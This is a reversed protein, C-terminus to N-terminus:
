KDAPSRSTYTLIGRAIGEAIADRHSKQSLKTEEAPNSLFGCEVLVAPCPANRIVDFRARRIGRDISGTAHLVGRHVYCALVTNRINHSNGPYDVSNCTKDATSPFGNAPLVYTEFGSANDSSAANLHISVFLNAKWKRAMTSRARLPLDIDKDRTLRVLLGSDALKTRVRRAIDLVAEKEMVRRGSAGGDMGGHGPDLVVMASHPLGSPLPDALLPDIVTEADATSITWDQSKRLAPGNMFIQMNNLLIKRSDHTFSLSYNRSSLTMRNGNRTACTLGHRSAMETLPCRRSANVGGASLWTPLTSVLVLCVAIKELYMRCMKDRQTTEILVQRKPAIRRLTESSPLVLYTRPLPPRSPHSEM